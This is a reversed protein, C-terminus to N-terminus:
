QETNNSEKSSNEIESLIIKYYKNQPIQSIDKLLLETFNQLAKNNKFHNTKYCIYAKWNYYYLATETITKLDNILIYKHTRKGEYLYSKILKEITYLIQSLQSFELQCSTLLSNKLKNFDFDVVDNNIKLKFKTDFSSVSTLRSEYTLFVKGCNLCKRRRKVSNEAQRSDVVCIDSDNGCNPCSIGM